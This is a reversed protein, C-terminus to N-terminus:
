SNFLKNDDVPVHYCLSEYVPDGDAVKTHCGSVNMLFIMKKGYPVGCYGTYQTHVNNACAAAINTSLSFSEFVIDPQVYAKKM